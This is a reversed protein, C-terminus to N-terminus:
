DDLNMGIQPLWPASDALEPPLAGGSRAQQDARVQHWPRPAASAAESPGTIVPPRYEPDPEDEWCRANLWTAPHKTYKPDQLKRELAYFEAGALILAPDAGDAIARTYAKEAAAKAVKRPYADWFAGFGDPPTPRKPKRKPPPEDGEADASSPSTTVEERVRVRKRDFNDRSAQQPLSESVHGETFIETTNGTEPNATVQQYVASYSAGNQEEMVSVDTQRTSGLRGKSAENVHGDRSAEVRNDRSSERQRQTRKRDRDSRRRAALAELEAQDEDWDVIRYGGQVRDWLGVTVLAAVRQRWGTPTLMPLVTEPVYGGTEADACYSKARLHLVEAKEGARQMEPEMYYGTRQKFWDVTLTGALHNPHGGSDSRPEQRTTAITQTM